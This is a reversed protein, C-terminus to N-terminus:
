YSPCSSRNCTTSASSTRGVSTTILGRALNRHPSDTPCVELYFHTRVGRVTVGDAWPAAAGADLSYEPVDTNSVDKVIVPLLVAVIAGKEAVKAIPAISGQSSGVCDLILASGAHKGFLASIQQVVDAQIYDLVATAGLAILHAHHKPSATAIIQTYGYYRLLQVAYQGVSTAGGWILIPATAAPPKYAAPKPYQLPINLDATFTHWVSVFNNPVTIVAEM